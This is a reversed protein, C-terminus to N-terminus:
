RVPEKRLEAAANLRSPMRGAYPLVETMLSLGQVRATLPFPVGVRDNLWATGPYAFMEDGTVPDETVGTSPPAFICM